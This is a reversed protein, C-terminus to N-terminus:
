KFLQIIRTEKLIFTLGPFILVIPAISSYLEILTKIVLDLIPGQYFLNNSFGRQSRPNRIM